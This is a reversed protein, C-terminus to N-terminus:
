LNWLEKEKIMNVTAATKQQERIVMMLVARLQKNTAAKIQKGKVV